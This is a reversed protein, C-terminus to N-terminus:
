NGCCNVGRLLNESLPSSLDLHVTYFLVMSVTWISRVCRFAGVACGVSDSGRIFVPRHPYCACSSLGVDPVVCLIRDDDDFGEPGPVVGVGLCLM